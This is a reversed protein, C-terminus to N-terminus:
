RRAPCAAVIEDLIGKSLLGRAVIEVGDRYMEALLLKGAADVYRVDALDLRVPVGEVTQGVRSWARRLEDVLEGRLAGELRLVQAARGDPTGEVVETIRLMPEGTSSEAVATGRGARAWGLARAEGAFRCLLVASDEAPRGLARCVQPAHGASRTAHREDLAETPM